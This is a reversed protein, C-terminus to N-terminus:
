AKNEILLAVFLRCLELAKERTMGSSHFRSIPPNLDKGKMDPVQKIGFDAPSARIVSYPTLEFVNYVCHTILKKNKLDKIKAFSELAEEVTETPFGVIMYISAAIGAWSFDVLIKQVLEENIGKRMLKLVRSSYSELGLSAAYCGAKKYLMLRTLTLRKDFRFNTGWCIKMSKKIIEQSIEELVEPSSAEDTFHFRRVGTQEVITELQRVLHDASPQDHHHILSLLTKCFACKAWYCGRSLRFLLTMSEKDVLYRELPFLTYDPPPTHEMKLPPAPPQFMIESKEDSFYIIGPVKKLDPRAESQENILIELPIEGDDLIISDVVKFIDPENIERMHCSVFSGGMTIHVGPNIAKIIEACKFAPLVMDPFSISLGVVLPHIKKLVEKLITEIFGSFLTNHKLSELIDFSSFNSFASTYRIYSTNDTFYLKEPYYLAGALNLAVQFLALKRRYTLDKNEFLSFLSAGQAELTESLSELNSYESNELPARFLKGKLEARRENVFAISRILHEETLFIRYFEINLDLAKVRFGKSKLFGALVPVSLCPKDPMAFPPNILLIDVKEMDCGYKKKMVYEIVGGPSAFCKKLRRSVPAM